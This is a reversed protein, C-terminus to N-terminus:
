WSPNRHLDRVSVMVSEWVVGGSVVASEWVFGWCKYRRIGLYIELALWPPNRYLDRISVM